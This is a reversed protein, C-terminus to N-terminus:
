PMIAASRYPNHFGAGALGTAITVTGSALAPTPGSHLALGIKARGWVHRSGDRHLIRRTDGGGFEFAVVRLERHDVLESLQFLPEGLVPQRALRRREAPQEARARAVVVDDSPEVDVALDAAALSHQHVQEELGRRDQALAADMKVLEHGLHVLA